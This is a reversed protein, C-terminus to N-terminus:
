QIECNGSIELINGQSIFDYFYVSDHYIINSDEFDGSKIVSDVLITKVAPIRYIDYPVVASSVITFNTRIIDRTENQDLGEIETEDTIGEELSLPMFVFIDPYNNTDPYWRLSRQGRAFLQMIKHILYDRERLSNNYLSFTYTIDFHMPSYTVSVKGDTNSYHDLASVTLHINPCEKDFRRRMDAGHFNLLPLQLNGNFRKYWYRFAARPTGYFVQLSLNDGTPTIKFSQFTLRFLKAIEIIYNGFLHHPFLDIGAM